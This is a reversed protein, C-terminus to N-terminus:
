ARGLLAVDAIRLFLARLRHLLSLRNARLAPDDVMVMVDDFFRDVWRRLSALRKLAADYDRQALLEDLSSETEALADFLEAEAEITLSNREVDGFQHADAQDLLNKARKNAAILSSVEPDDAFAQVARARDAFDAVSGGRGAIVARLANIEIGQEVLHSRLREALFREVDERTDDDVALQPELTAAAHDILARPALECRTDELIRVVALAARRLAFPDKGGKPRKGAAFVGVLSDLRDAVALAQGAPDEPLRDGAHRPLYHSEIMAAVDAPEGEAAAYYRGMTGQLEPFEGVMETVLDCKCLTAGRRCVAADAGFAPALAAALEALRRSKDALSGLQEQFLMGALREFRDALPQQRDQEYFFRADSLRPRIVREFGHVMRAPDASELNAVAIFRPALAGDADFMPFSKQHERLSSILAEAPVELFAPDFSGVVAVPWEVLGAVEDLLADDTKTSLGAERAQEAVQEAIRERRQDFDAVVFASELVAEYYAATPLEQDGPAHIRHGQTTRGADLGFLSVPVVDGGHLAVLWRVPRLFRDDRDSWRMSRAGAMNRVTRTLVDPLLENLTQGPQDIEAFLWRGQENEIRQLASVPLGVSRAFGEAARTPNGDDDFAASEAPGKRELKRDPQRGAVDAIAVALRRPTAFTRAETGEEVLGAEALGGLLGDLLLGAQAKLARAPLEECGLEILLIKNV